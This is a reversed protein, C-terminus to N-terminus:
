QTLGSAKCIPRLLGWGLGAIPAEADDLGMGFIGRIGYFCVCLVNCATKRPLWIPQVASKICMSIELYRAHKSAIKPAFCVEDTKLFM